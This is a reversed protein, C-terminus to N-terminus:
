SSQWPYISQVGLFELNEALRSPLGYRPHRLSLLPNQSPRPTSPIRPLLPIPRPATSSQGYEGDVVSVIRSAQLRSPQCPEDSRPPLNPTTQAPLHELAQGEDNRRKTGALPRLAYNQDRALDLTTRHGHTVTSRQWSAGM